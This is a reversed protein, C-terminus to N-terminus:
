HCSALDPWFIIEVTQHHTIIFNIMKTSCRTHLEFDVAERRVRGVYPTLFGAELIACTVLVKDAFKAREKFESFNEIDNTYFGDNGKMESHPLTFYKQDDIIIYRPKECFVKTESSQLM